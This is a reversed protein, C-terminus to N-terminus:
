SINPLFMLVKFGHVNVLLFFDVFGAPKSVCIDMGSWM